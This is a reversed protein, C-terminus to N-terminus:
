SLFVKHTNRNHSLPNLVQSTDMLNNTWDQAKSLPNLIQTQQSSCCLDCIHSPDTNSHHLSAATAVIRGRTQSSGYAKKGLFFFFYKM